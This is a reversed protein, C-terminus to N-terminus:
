RQGFRISRGREVGAIRGLGGGLNVDVVALVVRQLFDRDIVLALLAIGVAACDGEAVVVVVIPRRRQAGVATVDHKLAARGIQDGAGAVLVAHGVNEKVIRLGM